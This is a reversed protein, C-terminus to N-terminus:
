WDMWSGRPPLPTGAPRPGKLPRPRAPPLSRRPQFALASQAAYDARREFIDRYAVYNFVGIFVLIAASVIDGAPGARTFADATLSLVAIFFVIVWEGNLRSARKSLQCSELVTLGPALAMLPFYCVGLPGVLLLCSWMYSGVFDALIPSGSLAWHLLWGMSALLCGPLLGGGRVSSSAAHQLLESRRFDRDSRRALLSSVVWLLPLLLSGAALTWGAEILSAPVVEADLLSAIAVVAVAAGFSVPSRVLLALTTFVWRGLFPKEVKRPELTESMPFSRANLTGISQLAVRRM